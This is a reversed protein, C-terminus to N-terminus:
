ASLALNQFGLETDNEGSNNQSTVRLFSALESAPLAPACLYGQMEHCGIEQILNLEQMTEVGEAIVRLNMKNGLSAIASCIALRDADTDIAQVLSKDIKIRNVNLRSLRSLSSHGTGFDDIAMSVGLDKLQNFVQIDTNGMATTETIELELWVPDLQFDHLASQVIAVLDQHKFQVPSINVAVPVVSLGQNQWEKIQRCATNIVWEGLPIILKSAEAVPIFESPTIEGREHHTWRLLAEVGVIKGDITSLKPQYFLKMHGEEVAIRLENELSLSFPYEEDMKSSYIVFGSRGLGKAKHLAVNARRLIEQVEVKGATYILSGINASTHIQHGDLKYPEALVSVVRSTYKSLDLSETINNVVIAFENGGTRAVIDSKRVCSQLRDVVECLLSDGVPNGYTDNVQKFNNIDILLLAVREDRNKPNSILSSFHARNFTGTMTDFMEMRNSKEHESALQKEAVWLKETVMSLRSHQWIIYLCFVITVLITVGFERGILMNYIPELNQYVRDSTSFILISVFIFLVIVAYLPYKKMIGVINQKYVWYM